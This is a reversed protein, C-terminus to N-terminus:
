APRPESVPSASARKLAVFGGASGGLLKLVHAIVYALPEPQGLSIGLYIVIAAIGVLAGHLVPRQPANRGVWVGFVFAAACSAPPASYVLSKQGALLSLPIVVVFILLETLFGGLLIWGWRINKM